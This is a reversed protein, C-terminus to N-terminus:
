KEMINMSLNELIKKVTVLLDMPIIYHYEDLFSKKHWGLFQLTIREREPLGNFLILESYDENSKIIAKTHNNKMAKLGYMFRRVDNNFLKESETNENGILFNPIAVGVHKNNYIKSFGYDWDNTKYLTVECDDPYKEIWCEHNSKDRKMDFYQTGEGLKAANAWNINEIFEVTWNQANIKPLYFLESITNNENMMKNEVFLGLGVSKANEIDFDNRVILCTANVKAKQISAPIIFESFGFPVFYGAQEYYTRIKAVFKAIQLDSIFDAFSPFISIYEMVIKNIKRTLYAKSVGRKSYLECDNLDHDLISYQMWLGIASYILRNLYEEELENKFQYINLDDSMTKIMESKLDM